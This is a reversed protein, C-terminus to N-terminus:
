KKFKGKSKLELLSIFNTIIFTILITNPQPIFRMMIDRLFIYIYLFCLATFYCKIVVLLNGGFVSHSTYQASSKALPVRNNIQNLALASWLGRRGVEGWAKSKAVATHSLALAGTLSSFLSLLWVHPRWSAM